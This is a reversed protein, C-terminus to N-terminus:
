GKFDDYVNHEYRGHVNVWGNAGALQNRVDRYFSHFQLVDGAQRDIHLESGVTASDQVVRLRVCLQGAPYRPSSPEMGSGSSVRQLSGADTAAAAAAAASGDISSSGDSSPLLAAAATANRRAATEEDESDLEGGVYVVHSLEGKVVEYRVGLLDLASAVEGMMQEKEYPLQVWGLSRVLMGNVGPPVDEALDNGGLHHPMPTPRSSPADAQVGAGAGTSDAPRPRQASRGELGESLKRKGQALHATGNLSSDTAISADSVALSAEERSATESVALSPAPDLSAIRSAITSGPQHSDGLCASWKQLSGNDGIFPSDTPLAPQVWRSALVGSATLRRNPDPEIMGVLLDTASVSFGNAECLVRVGRQLVMAYRPCRSAHAAQFPLAGSLM